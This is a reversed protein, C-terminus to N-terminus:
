TRGHEDRNAHACPNPRANNTSRDSAQQKVMTLRMGGSTRKEYRVEDMVERIIHVGLGGPRIDELDRGKIQDPDVQKAEDEIVIELGTVQPGQPGQPGQTDPSPTTLPTMRLWIRGDLRREYGHKMVNVIAEDVALAVQSAQADAFGLRKASLNIMERVACLYIPNSVIELAIDPKPPTTM